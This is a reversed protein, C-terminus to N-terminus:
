PGRMNSAERDCEFVGSEIPSRQVLSRGSASDKVQCFVVSVVSLCGHGRRSEFGCDWCDLPRLGM